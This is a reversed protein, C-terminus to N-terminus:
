RVGDPVDIIRARPHENPDTPFECRTTDRGVRTLMVDDAPYSACLPTVFRLGPLIGSERRVVIGYDTTAGGNTRFVALVEDGLRQERMRQFSRDVDHWLIDPVWLVLMFVTGACLAASVLAVPALIVLSLKWLRNSAPIVLWAALLPSYFIAAMFFYNLRASSFRVGGSWWNAIVLTYVVAWVALVVARKRETTVRLWTPWRSAEATLSM